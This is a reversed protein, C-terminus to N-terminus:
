PLIINYCQNTWTFAQFIYSQAEFFLYTYLAVRYLYSPKFKGTCSNSKFIFTCIFRQWSCIKVVRNSTLDSFWGTCTCISFQFMGPQPIAFVDVFDDALLLFGRCFTLKWPSANDLRRVVQVVDDKAFSYSLKDAYCRVSFNLLKIHFWM